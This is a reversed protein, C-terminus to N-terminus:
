KKNKKTTKKAARKAKKKEVKGKLEASKAVKGQFKKVRGETDVMREKGSYFPHCQSCVEIDLSDQTSGITFSNGCVCKVKCKENYKPHIDKKM